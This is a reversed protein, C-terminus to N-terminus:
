KWNGTENYNKLLDIEVARKQSNYKDPTGLSVYEYLRVGAWITLRTFKGVGLDCMAQLLLDDVQRRTLPVFTEGDLYGLYECLWDHLVAAQGYSGWPPILSWFVRPVSAGDTLYGQPVVVKKKRTEDLYFVFGKKVIWLDCKMIVSAYKSYEIGLDSDFAKLDIVESM